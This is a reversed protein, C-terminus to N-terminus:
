TALRPPLGSRAGRSDDRPTTPPQIIRLGDASSLLAQDLWRPVAIFGATTISIRQDRDPEEQCNVLEHKTLTRVADHLDNRDCALAIV